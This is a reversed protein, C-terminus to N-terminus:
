GDREDRDQEAHKGREDLIRDRLLAIGVVRDRDDAQHGVDSHDGAEQHQEVDSLPREPDGSVSPPRSSRGGVPALVRRSKAAHGFYSFDSDPTAGVGNVLIVVDVTDVRQAKCVVGLDPILVESEQEGDQLRVGARLAVAERCFGALSRREARDRLALNGVAEQTQHKRGIRCGGQLQRARHRQPQLDVVIGLSDQRLAQASDPDM